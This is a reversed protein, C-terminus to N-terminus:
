RIRYIPFRYSQKNSARYEKMLKKIISQVSEQVNYLGAKVKFSSLAPKQSPIKCHAHLTAVM